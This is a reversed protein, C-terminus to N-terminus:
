LGLESLSNASFIQTTLTAIQSESLTQLRAVIPAPLNGYKTALQVLLMERKGELKGEIRGERKGKAVLVQAGTMQTDELEASHTINDIVIENLFKQEEEPFKHRIFLSVYHLARAWEAQDEIPLAELGSVAEALM